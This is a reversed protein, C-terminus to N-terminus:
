IIKIITVVSSILEFLTVVDKFHKTQHLAPAIKLM